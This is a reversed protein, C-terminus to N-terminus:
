DEDDAGFLFDAACWSMDIAIWLPWMVIGFLFTLWIGATTNSIYGGAAMLITYVGSIAVSIFFYLLLWHGAM